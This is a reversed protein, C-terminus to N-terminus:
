KARKILEFPYDIYEDAEINVGETITVVDGEITYLEYASEDIETDLSDSMYLKGDEAKYKGESTAEESMEELNVSEDMALNVFSELDMGLSMQIIEEYTMGLASELEEVTEVVVGSDALSVILVEALMDKMYATVETKFQEYSATFQDMDVYQKYTGDESFESVVVMNFDSMYDTLSTETAMDMGANIEEVLMDKLNITTDYTGLIEPGKSGCGILSLALGLALILSLLKKM